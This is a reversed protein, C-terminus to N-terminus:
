RLLGYARKTVLVRLLAERVRAQSITGSRAANLVATYAAEQDGAEGSIYVM